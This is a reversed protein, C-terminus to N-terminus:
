RSGKGQMLELRADIQRALLAIEEDLGPRRVTRAGEAALIAEVQDVARPLDENVVIYDFETAAEIEGKARALRRRQVEADESGRGVLRAALVEGTPPLVFVSVAEPVADRVQRAGQIDIDLLLYVSREAAERLNRRPTGYLNGHVEAWELLEGREVLRLFGARDVFNYEVGEVEGRRPPRTTTSVSFAVDSRRRYLERAITTKGAGSPAALILPFPRARGPALSSM